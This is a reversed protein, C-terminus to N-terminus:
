KSAPPRIETKDMIAVGTLARIAGYDRPNLEAAGRCHPIDLVKKLFDDASAGARLIIENSILGRAV